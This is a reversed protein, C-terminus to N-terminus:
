TITPAPEPEPASRLSARRKRVLGFVLLAIAIVITAIPAVIRFLEPGEAVVIRGTVNDGRELNTAIYRRYTRQADRPGLKVEGSRRLGDSPEIDLDGAVLLEYRSTPLTVARSFAIGGASMQTVYTYSV